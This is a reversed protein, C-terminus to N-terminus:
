GVSTLQRVKKKTVGSGQKTAQNFWQLSRMYQRFEQRTIGKANYYGEPYVYRRAIVKGLMSITFLRETTCRPCYLPEYYGFRPQHTTHWEEWDHGFTRCWVYNQNYADLTNVTKRKM